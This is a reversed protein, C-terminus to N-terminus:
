FSWRTGVDSAFGYSKSLKIIDQRPSNTMLRILLLAGM